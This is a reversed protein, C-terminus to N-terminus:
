TWHGLLLLGNVATFAWISGVHLLRAPAAVYASQLTVTARAATWWWALLVVAGAAFWPLSITHRLWLISWPVLALAFYALALRSTLRVGYHVVTTRRGGAKDNAFDRIDQTLGEGLGMFVVVFGLYPLGRTWGAFGLAGAAYAFMASWILPWGFPLLNPRGSFGKFNYVLGAPILVLAMVLTSAWGLPISVALALLTTAWGCVLYRRPSAEGTILARRFRSPDTSARDIPIDVLDNFFTQGAHWALIGVIVLAATGLPLATGVMATMMAAPVVIDFWLRTSPRVARVFWRLM